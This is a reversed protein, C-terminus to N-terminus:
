VCRELVHGGEHIFEFNTKVGAMQAVKDLITQGFVYNNKYVAWHAKLDSYHHAKKFYARIHKNASSFLFYYFSVFRLIFYAPQLGFTNLIFVFIKYGLIKARSQGDWQSSQNKM